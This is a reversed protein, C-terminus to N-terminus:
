GVRFGSGLLVTISVTFQIILQINTYWLCEPPCSPTIGFL